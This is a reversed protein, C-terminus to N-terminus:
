KIGDGGAQLAHQKLYGRLIQEVLAIVGTARTGIGTAIDTGVAIDDALHSIAPLKWAPRGNLRGGRRLSGIAAPGLRRGGLKKMVVPWIWLCRRLVQGAPCYERLTIGGRCPRAM